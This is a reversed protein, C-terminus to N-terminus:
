FVEAFVSPSVKTESRFPALLEKLRASKAKLQAETENM